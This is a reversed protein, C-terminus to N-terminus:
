HKFMGRMCFFNPTMHGQVYGRKQFNKFTVDLSDGPFM